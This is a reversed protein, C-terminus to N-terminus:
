SKVRAVAALWRAHRDDRERRAISPTFRRDPRNLAALEAEDKWLGVGLGALWAAGMATTEVQRPRVVPVGVLDALLQCFLDNRTAGGDVCLEITRVRADAHMCDVVDRTQFAMAELTARAVHGRTTGRTLGFIAGRAAMDWHPAGLGVLAPVFVVGGSDAVSRALPEVEAATGILGLGDRLWQVAAGSVFVSGELAYTTAGRRSWAVTTLLRHRSAQATRGTNMLLFSGTGFTCKMSGPAFCGQGFLAAQQDGAIGAIPIPAGFWEPATEAVVGSSEIVRPLVAPPIRLWRLLAPDFRGSQLDFLMTRSANSADTVHARGRTLQWALWSDVTGFALEGRAARRRAGPVRDLLWALKSASFYADLVLGTKERIRRAFPARALRECQPATRRCQWVIANAIPRGSAREWVMTTERQNAIGIAAVDRGRARAARLAARAAALQSAWIAAPDHEVWGPRPFLQPFDRGSTGRVKGGADVVFARSSTTGQDLALVLKAM